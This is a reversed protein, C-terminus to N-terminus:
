STLTHALANLRHKLSAELVKGDVKIILGGVISPDVQMRLIVKRGTLKSLKQQLESCEEPTLDLASAVEAVSTNQDDLVLQEFERYMMPIFGERGKEVVLLLFSELLPSLQMLSILQAKRERGTRPHYFAGSIVPDELVALVRKFEQALEARKDQGTLFLAQAYRSAIQSSRMTTMSM